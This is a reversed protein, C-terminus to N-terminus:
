FTYNMGYASLVARMMCVSKLLERSSVNPRRAPQFINVERWWYLTKLKFYEMIKKRRQRKYPM